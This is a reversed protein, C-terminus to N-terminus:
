NIKTKLSDLENNLSHIIRNKEKLLIQKQILSDNKKSIVKNLKETNGKEKNSESINTLFWGFLAGFVLFCFNIFYKNKLDFLTRQKIESNINKNIEKNSLYKEIGINKIEDIKSTQNFQLPKNNPKIINNRELFSFANKKLETINGASSIVRNKELEKILIDIEDLLEQKM